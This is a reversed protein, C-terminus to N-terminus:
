WYKLIKMDAIFTWILCTVLPLQILFYFPLDAMRNRFGRMFSELLETRGYIYGSIEILRM